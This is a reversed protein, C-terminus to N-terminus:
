ILNALLFAFRLEFHLIYLAFYLVNSFAKWKENQMKINENRLIKM